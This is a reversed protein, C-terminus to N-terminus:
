VESGSEKRGWTVVAGGLSLVQTRVNGIGAHGWMRRLDELTHERYFDSISHGLFSGVRRWGPSLLRMGVPMLGRTHALWLARAVPNQPLYFELSALQGGHRLVRAIESLTAQPDEVYRLLFTFVVADFSGDAFPLSEARGNILRIPGARRRGAALMRRSLDLGVVRCGNTRAIDSAVLGTGTSVDLVSADPALDLRGVLFRRWRNYQFFSFLRAPREYEDAIGDFIRQAETDGRYSDIM